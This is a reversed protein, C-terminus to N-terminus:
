PNNPNTQQEQEFIHNLMQSFEYDTSLDTWQFLPSTNTNIQTNPDIGAYLHPLELGPEFANTDMDFGGLPNNELQLAMEGSCSACLKRLNRGIHKAPCWSSALEDLVTLCLSLRNRNSPCSPECLLVLAASLACHTATIPSRQFGGFVQRYKQAVLCIARASETSACQAIKLTENQAQEPTYEPNPRPTMLFPKALLIRATHYVM